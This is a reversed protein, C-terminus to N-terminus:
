LCGARGERLDHFVTIDHQGRRAATEDIGVAEVGQFDEQARADDMTYDLVRWGTDDGM